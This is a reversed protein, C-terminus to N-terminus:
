RTAWAADRCCPTIERACSRARPNLSSAILSRMADPYRCCTKRPAKATPCRVIFLLPRMSAAMCAQSSPVTSECPLAASSRPRHSLRSGVTWTMGGSQDPRFISPIRQCRTRRGRGSSIPIRSPIRHVVIERVITSMAPSDPQPRSRLSTSCAAIMRRSSMSSISRIRVRPRLSPAGRSRVIRMGQLLVASGLGSSRLRRSARRRGRSMSSPSGAGRVLMLSLM